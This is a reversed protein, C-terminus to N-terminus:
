INFRQRLSVGDEIDEVVLLNVEKKSLGFFNRLLDVEDKCDYPQIWVSHQLPYFGLTKLFGRFGDRKIRTLESIDFIVVRWKGDWKKQKQIKLDNIQFIGARRKGEATLSIHIQHNQREIKLCGEKRLRYFANSASRRSYPKKDKGLANILNITFYPSTAAIAVAGGIALLRFIDKVIEGRPKRFYYKYKSM